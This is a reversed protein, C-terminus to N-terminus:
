LGLLGTDLAIMCLLIHSDDLATGVGECIGERPSAYDFSCDIVGHSFLLALYGRAECPCERNLRRSM